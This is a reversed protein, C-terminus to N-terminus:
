LGRGHHVAWRELERCDHTYVATESNETIARLM